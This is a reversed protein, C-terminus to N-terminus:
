AFRLEQLVLNWADVDGIRDQGPHGIGLGAAAVGRSRFADGDSEFRKPGDAIGDSADVNLDGAAVEGARQFYQGSHLVCNLGETWFGELPMRWAHTTPGSDRRM